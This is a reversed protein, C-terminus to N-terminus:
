DNQEAPAPDQLVINTGKYYHKQSLTDQLAKVVPTLVSKDMGKIFEYVEGTDDGTESDWNCSIDDAILNLLTEEDPVGPHYAKPDVLLYTGNILDEPEVDGLATLAQFGENPLLCFEYGQEKAEQLTLTAKKVKEFQFSMKGDKVITVNNKGEILMPYEGDPIIDFSPEIDTGGTPKFGYVDRFQRKVEQAYQTMWM